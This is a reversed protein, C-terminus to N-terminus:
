ESEGEGAPEPAQTARWDVQEGPVGRTRYEARFDGLITTKLDHVAPPLALYNSADDAGGLWLEAVHDVEWARGDPTRPWGDDHGRAAVEFLAVYEPPYRGAAVADLVHRRMAATDAVPTGAGRPSQQLTLVDASELHRVIEAALLEGIPDAHLPTLNREFWGVMEARVGADGLDVFVEYDKRAARPLERNLTDFAVRADYGPEAAMRDALAQAEGAIRNLEAVTDPTRSRAAARRSRDVLRGVRDPDVPRLLRREAPLSERIGLLAGEVSVGNRVAARLTRLTALHDDIM